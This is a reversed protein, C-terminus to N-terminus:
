KEFHKLNNFATLHPAVDVTSNRDIVSLYNRTDAEIEIQNEDEEHKRQYKRRELLRVIDPSLRSRNRVDYAVQYKNRYEMTYIEMFDRDKYTKNRWDSDNSYSNSAGIAQPSDGVSISDGFRATKFKEGSISVERVEVIIHLKEQWTSLYLRGNTRSLSSHCVLEQFDKDSYGLLDGLGELCSDKVRFWIKYLGLPLCDKFRRYLLQCIEDNFNLTM